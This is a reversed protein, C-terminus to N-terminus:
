LDGRPLSAKASLAQLYLNLVKTKKEKGPTVVAIRTNAPGVMAKHIGPSADVLKYELL